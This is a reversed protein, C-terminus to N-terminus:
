RAISASRRFIRMLGAFVQVSILVLLGLPNLMPMLAFFNSWDSSGVPAGKGTSVILVLPVRWYNMIIVYIACLAVTASVLFWWPRSIRRRAFYAAAMAPIVPFGMIMVGALM